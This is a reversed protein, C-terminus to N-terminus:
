NDSPRAVRDIVIVDVPGKASTLKLGLQEQIATFLGPPSTDNVPAGDPTWQLTFDYGGILKTRDLVIRDLEDSLMSALQETPTNSCKFQGLGESFGSSKTSKPVQLKPGGKAVELEFIPLERTARHVQLQFRDALLAQVRAEVIRSKVDWDMKAEAKIDADTVGDMKAVIDFRESEAWAPADLVQFDHLDYAFQILYKVTVNTMEFRNLGPRTMMAVANPDSRRISVIDFARSPTQAHVNAAALLLAAFIM